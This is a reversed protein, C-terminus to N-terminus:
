NLGFLKKWWSRKSDTKTQEIIQPIVESYIIEQVSKDKQGPAASNKIQQISSTNDPKDIPQNKGNSDPFLIDGNDASADFFGVNHKEALAKMKEYAQEALSWAFAAYIINKGVSYDTVFDNDVDEENSYPGNMTPYSTIMELFWSKLNDTTVAPDDYCHEEAWETENFYWNMFEPRTRPAIDPRFVMLDYSM